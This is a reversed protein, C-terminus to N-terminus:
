ALMERVPCGHSLGPWSPSGSFCVIRPRGAAALAVFALDGGRATGKASRSCRLSRLAERAFLLDGGCAGGALALTMRASMLDALARLARAAIAEKDPPFRPKERDPRDIM